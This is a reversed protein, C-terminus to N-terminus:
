GFLAGIGAVRSTVPRSDKWVLFLILGIVPFCFGLLGWGFGGNDMVPAFNQQPVGCQPCIVAEDDIMAGCKRCYAM